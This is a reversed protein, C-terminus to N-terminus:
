LTRSALDVERDLLMANREQLLANEEAIQQNQITAVDAAGLYEVGELRQEKLYRATLQEVRSARLAELANDVPKVAVAQVVWGVPALVAQVFGGRNNTYGLNHSWNGRRERKDTLDWLREQFIRQEAQYIRTEILKDFDVESLFETIHQYDPVPNGLEINKLYINIDPNIYQQINKLTRLTMKEPKFDFGSDHEKARAVLTDLPLLTLQPNCKFYNVLYAFAKYPDAGKQLLIKISQNIKKLDKEFPHDWLLHHGKESLKDWVCFMIFPTALLPEGKYKETNYFPYCKKIIHQTSNPDIQGSDIEQALRAPDFFLYQNVILDTMKAGTNNTLYNAICFIM